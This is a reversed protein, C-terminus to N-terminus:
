IIWPASTTLHAFVSLGSGVVWSKPDSLSGRPARRQAIPINSIICFYDTALDLIEEFSM